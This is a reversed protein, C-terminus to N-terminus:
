KAEKVRKLDDKSFGTGTDRMKKLFDKPHKEKKVTGYKQRKKM